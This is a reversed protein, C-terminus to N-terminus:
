RLGGIATRMAQEAIPGLAAIVGRLLANEQEPTLKVMPQPTLGVWELLATAIAARSAPAVDLIALLWEVRMYRGERDQLADNLESKRADCAGSAQLLGISDVADGLARLVKRRAHEIRDRRGFDL